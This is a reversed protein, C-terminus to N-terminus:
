SLQLIDVTEEDNRNLNIPSYVQDLTSYIRRDRKSWHLSKRYRTKRRTEILEMKAECDYATTKGKNLVILRLFEIRFSTGAAKMNEDNYDQILPYESKSREFDVVLRPRKFLEIVEKGILAVSAGGIATLLPIVWTDM